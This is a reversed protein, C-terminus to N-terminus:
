FRKLRLLNREVAPTLLFYKENEEIAKIQKQLTKVREIMKNKTERLEIRKEKVKEQHHRSCKKIFSDVMQRDTTFIGRGVELQTKCQWEIKTMMITGRNTVLEKNENDTKEEILRYLEVEMAKSNILYILDNKKIEWIKKIKRKEEFM